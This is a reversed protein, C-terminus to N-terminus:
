SVLAAVADRHADLQNSLTLHAHVEALQAHTAQFFDSRRQKGNRVGEVSEKM